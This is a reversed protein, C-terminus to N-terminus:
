EGFSPFLYGGEPRTSGEYLWHYLTYCGSVCLFCGAILCCVLQWAGSGLRFVLRSDVGGAVLLLYLGCCVIVIASCAVGIPTSSSASHRFPSRRPHLDVAPHDTATDIAAQIPAPTSARETTPLASYRYAFRSGM